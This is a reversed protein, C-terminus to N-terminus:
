RCATSSAPRSRWSWRDGLDRDPLILAATGACCSSPSRRRAAPDSRHGFRLLTLGLIFLMTDAHILDDLGRFSLLHERSGSTWGRTAVEVHWGSTGLGTFTAVIILAMGYTLANKHIQYSFSGFLFLGLITLLVEAALLWMPLTTARGALFVVAAVLACGIVFRSGDLMRVSAPDPPRVHPETSVVRARDISGLREAAEIQTM